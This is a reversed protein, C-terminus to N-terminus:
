FLHLSMKLKNQRWKPLEYFARKTMGFKDQFDEDSLYAERKTVDIGAVPDSSIVSLREYPYILLNVCDGSGDAQIFGASQSLSRPEAAPSGHPSGSFLKRVIPTPSSFLQNTSSKSNSGSVSSAPSGSRGLGNSVLSKSRLGDPTTERSYAKWSNRTPVQISLHLTLLIFRSNCNSLSLLIIM